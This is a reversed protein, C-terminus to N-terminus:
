ITYPWSFYGVMDHAAYNQVQRLLLPGSSLKWRPKLRDRESESNLGMKLTNAWFRYHLMVHVAPYVFYVM